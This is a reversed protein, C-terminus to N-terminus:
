IQQFVTECALALSLLFHEDRTRALLEMGVPLGKGTNGCPLTIAPLGSIAALEPACGPPMKELSIPQRAVSPYLFADIRYHEASRNLNLNLKRQFRRGNLWEPTKLSEWKLMEKLLSLYEPLYDGSAIIAQLSAPGNQQLKLWHNIAVAKNFLYSKKRVVRYSAPNEPLVCA